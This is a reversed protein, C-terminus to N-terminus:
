ATMSTSATSRSSAPIACDRLPARAELLFRDGPSGKALVMGRMVKLALPRGLDPDRALYVKGM